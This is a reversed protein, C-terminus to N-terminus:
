NYKSIRQFSDKLAPYLNAHVAKVEEYLNLNDKIPELRSDVEILSCVEELNSWHNIGVGALMAAGFAGGETSGKVTIVECNFIDAQMQRWLKSGAGGGTAIITESTINLKKFLDDIHALNLVVGEMVARILHRHDHRIDLGFFVGRANPDRHPSREGQIYPLFVLGECGPPIEGADKMMEEYSIEQAVVQKNKAFLNRLWALAGGANIMGGMGHWLNSANNCFFQIKGGENRVAQTFVTAYIGATGIITLLKGPTILGSGTSQIIADGGGAVVPIGANIGMLEAAEKSISGTVENSEYAPPFLDKALSLKDILDFSWNRNVVDFLGTGSAESVDTAIENTMKLRIYDKPNLILKLKAFNEPEFEKLWLIKGGTYGILMHNNTFDLINDLGGVIALIEDCQKQNRQDNWLIAPRIVNHDKDLPVLGHMQGSLSIAKIDINDVKSLLKKTANCTANWWDHPNQESWNSQPTSLPYEILETAVVALKNDILVVKCGSTGIDIGLYVERKTM